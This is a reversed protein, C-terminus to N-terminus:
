VVSKRDRNLKKEVDTIKLETNEYDGKLITLQSSINEISEEGSVERDGKASYNIRAMELSVHDYLKRIYDSIDIPKGDKGVKSNNVNYKERLTIINQCLIENSRSTDQHIQTLVMFIDSYFHRYYKGTTQIYYIEELRNYIKELDCENKLATDLALDFLIQKFENRKTEEEKLDM